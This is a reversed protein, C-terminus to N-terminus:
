KKKRSIFTKLKDELAVVDAKLKDYDTTVSVNHRAGFLSGLVFGILGFFVGSGAIGYLMYMDTDLMM